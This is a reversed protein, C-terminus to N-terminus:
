CNIVAVAVVTRARFSVRLRHLGAGEEVLPPLLVDFAPAQPIQVETALWFHRPSRAAGVGVEGGVMPSRVPRQLDRVAEVTSRSNVIPTDVWSISPFRASSPAVGGAARLEVLDDEFRLTTGPPVDLRLELYTRGQHRRLELIAEAKGVPLRAGVPVHTNLACTAYVLQTADVDPVYQTRPLPVCGCVLSVLWVAATRFAQM